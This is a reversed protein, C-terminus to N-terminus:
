PTLKLAEFPAFQSHIERGAVFGFGGAATVRAALEGNVAGAM